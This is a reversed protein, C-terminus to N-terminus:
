KCDLCFFLVFLSMIMGNYYYVVMDLSNKIEFEALTKKKYNQQKKKKIFNGKEKESNNRDFLLSLIFDFYCVFVFGNFDLLLFTGLKSFLFM